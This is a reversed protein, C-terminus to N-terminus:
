REGGFLDADRKARIRAEHELLRHKWKVGAARGTVEGTQGILRHCPVAILALNAHCASGVARAGDPRGLTKAVAGYTRTEGAAITRVAAWVAQQFATGPQAVPVAAIPAPDGAFYANLAELFKRPVEGTSEIAVGRAALRGLHEGPARDPPGLLMLGDDNWAMVFRGWDPVTCVAALAAKRPASGDHAADRSDGTSDHAM